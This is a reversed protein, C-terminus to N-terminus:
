MSSVPAEGAAFAKLEAAIGASSAASVAVRHRLPLRGVGASYCASALSPADAGELREAYAAALDALSKPTKASLTLLSACTAEQAADQAVAAVAEAPAEVVVTHANTGSFGFSSVGGVRPRGNSPWDVTQDPVTAMARDLSLHPNHERLHLHAPVRANQVSLLLKALGSIGAAGEAHGMNTKVSGLYYRDNSDRGNRLVAALADVEIPDGLPTGTGHAEVVSYAAPEVGANRMSERIVKQQSPGNPATLGNSAGDQNVASGQLVAVVNDRDALAEALPRIVLMGCGEGRVYGNAAADFTHCRGDPSLMKAKSFNISLTPELLLNVGGALAMTCEGARLSTIALHLAVLSSSCATDVSLTPGQLGLVYAIRGSACSNANGTGFYADVLSSDGTKTQLLQYDNSCIGVFTGIPTGTSPEPFHTSREMAEWSVELLLRQQPDLRDAEKPTIGFFMADFMDPRDQESLLGAWKSYMKGEMDQVPSYYEELSWRSDPIETICDVKEVLNNWFLEPTSGGHPLRTSWGVVAMAASSLGLDAGAAASMPRSIISSPATASSAAAATAPAPAGGGGSELDTLVETLLFDSVAVVHPYDFLLTASLPQGVADALANRLEVAMLSDLGMDTLPKKPDVESASDLALIRAVEGCVFDELTQTRQGAPVDQLKTILESTGGAGGSGSGAGGGMLTSQKKPMLAIAERKAATIIPSDPALTALFTNSATLLQARHPASLMTALLDMGEDPMIMAKPNVMKLASPDMRSAMGVEAWPGWDISLAPLGMSQRTLALGDLFSNAAAYHAQGMNGLVGTGSSYLVFYDLKCGAAITATHLNWGGKLKPALVREFKDWGLDLVMQDEVVGASHFVGKLDPYSKILETCATANSVDCKPCIVTCGLAELEARVPANKETAGSRSALILATAGNAVLWKATLLGVGSLGGTVLYSAGGHINLPTPAPEYTLCIKGIHKANAMFRFMDIPKHSPFSKVPLIKIQGGSLKAMLENMMEKIFDPRADWLEVLDWHAFMIDSRAAAVQEPTWIGAKGIEIFRGNKATSAISKEIFDGGSLSNLVVHVGEGGTIKAIEEAYTTDRSYLVHQVGLAALYDRKEQKGATGFVECGLGLAIQVAALGVGGSAAHILVREGPKCKALHILSYYATLFTAPITVSDQFSIDAPKHQLYHEDSIAFSRMSGPAIGFVEDGVKFNTVGEGVRSVVGACEGGFPMNLAEANPYMNMANMVDRFNLGTVLVRVEVQKPGPEPRDAPQWSLNDLNGRGSTKLVQPSEAATDTASVIAKELRAAFRKGGRFAVQSGAGGGASCLEALLGTGALDGDTAADIDVMTCGTAALELALVRGFGWLMSGAPDDVTSGNVKVARQTVVVLRCGHAGAKALSQALLMASQCNAASPTDTTAASVTPHDLGWAFVVGLPQQNAAATNNAVAVLQAFSEASTGDVTFNTGSGSFGTGSKAVIANHSAGGLLKAIDPAKADAPALVLWTTPDAKKSSVEATAWDLEFLMNNPQKHVASEILAKSGAKKLRLNVLEVVKNGQEDFLWIDAGLADLTAYKNQALEKAHCYLTTGAMDKPKGFFNYKDCGMPIFTSGKFKEFSIAALTQFCSDILGPFLEFEEHEHGGTPLRMRCLVENEGKWLHEMWQFGEELMYERDWLIKYIEKRTVEGKNCRAMTEALYGGGLVPAPADAPRVVLSGTMHCTWNQVGEDDDLSHLEFPVAAETASDSSYVLQVMKGEVHQPLVLAQPFTVHQLRHPGTGHMQVTTALGMAIYAAGPVVVYDHLVHDGLLPLNATNFMTQFAVHGLPSEIRAGILPTIYAGGGGGAGTAGPAYVDRQTYIWARKKDYAITPLHDLQSAVAKSADVGRVAAVDLQVGSATLAAAARMISRNNDENENLSPVFLTASDEPICRRAMGLLVPKPGVELLVDVGMEQLALVSPYFQVAARIHGEWYAGNSMSDDGVALLKGTVNSVIPITPKNFAVMGAMMKFMPLCSEMLPSHFAHSVVLAKSKIGQKLLDAAIAECPATAGSIVTLQPGNAAAISVKAAHPAVAKEVTAADTFVAIMVGQGEPLGGMLNARTAILKCGKELDFVGAICAAVYEGVSHGMVVDPKLGWSLWLQALSYEVAFLCPQTFKTSNIPSEQGEAPYLVTLLSQGILPQLHKNCEDLAAKFVPESAYLTKGMGIYQSGQGTFVWAVKKNKLETGTTLLVPKDGSAFKKLEDALRQQSDVPVGLKCAFQTRKESYTSCLGSIDATPNATVFDAVKGAYDQLAKPTTASLTFLDWPKGPSPAVPAKTPAQEVIIHANTGSFGFSSVGAVRKEFGTPWPTLKMPITINSQKFNILPNVESFNNHQPIQANQVSLITKILGVIGAASELHGVNTKVTSVYLPTERGKFVANLSNIEIPDGLSTGTGHAEVYSIENPSVGAAAQAARIVASQSPGNPVTLGSSAGDHMIASGSIVASIKDGDKVADELPKLVIMGCGEGRVYGNATKDFTHCRGDPSLMHAKCLNVMIEPALMLNVGGAIALNCENNQLAQCALHTSVLTSSCATDVAVSPGQVGLFFSLRGSSVSHSNGTGFYADMEEFHGPPGILRSYDVTGIGVFVGAKTGHLSSPLIDADELAAWTCELLLRQQPDMSCAERASIKFFNAEFSDVDEVFGGWKSYSKGPAEQDADFYDAVNWRGKPGVEICDTGQKLM